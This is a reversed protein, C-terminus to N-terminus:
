RSVYLERLSQGCAAARRGRCFRVACGHPPARTFRKVLLTLALTEPPTIPVPQTRCCASCGKTCSIREGKRKVGAIVTNILRDDITHLAPLLQDLRVSGESVRTEVRVPKGNVRIVVRM